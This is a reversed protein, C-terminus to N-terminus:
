QLPAAPDREAARARAIARLRHLEVVEADARQGKGPESTVTVDGGMMRALWPNNGVRPPIYRTLIRCPKSLSMTFM